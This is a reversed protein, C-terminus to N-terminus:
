NIKQCTACRDSKKSGESAHSESSGYQSTADGVNFKLKKPLIKVYPAHPPESSSNTGVSAPSTRQAAFGPAAIAILVTVTIALARM